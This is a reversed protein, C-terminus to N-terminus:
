SNPSPIRKCTELTEQHGDERGCSEFPATSFYYDSIIGVFAWRHCADGQGHKMYPGHKIGKDGYQMNVDHGCQM